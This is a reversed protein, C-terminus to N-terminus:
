PIPIKQCCVEISTELVREIKAKLAMCIAKRRLVADKAEPDHGYRNLANEFRQELSIFRDKKTMKDAIYVIEAENIKADPHFDLDTHQSVIKAVRSFGMEFLMEAGKEAHRKQGKAIDHLLAAASVLGTNMDAGAQRLAQSISRATKEVQWCHSIIKEDVRCVQKLITECERIDPIGHNQAQILIDQYDEPSNMNSLIHRDPVPIEAAIPEFNQLIGMLGKEASSELIPSILEEPILPPHGRKGDFCPHIIKGPNKIYASALLRITLPRILCVDAPLIFFADTKEKELCQVGRKVSSFMGSAFETNEVIRVDSSQLAHKVESARHGTVVIIDKINEFIGIAREIVTKERIPLLPKFANMRSSYGAALIIASFREYNM